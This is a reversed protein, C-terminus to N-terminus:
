GELKESYERANSIIQNIEGREMKPKYTRYPAKKAAFDCVARYTVDFYLPSAAAGFSVPKGTSSKFGDMLGKRLCLPAHSQVGDIPLGSNAIRSFVELEEISIKKLVYACYCAAICASKRLIPTSCGHTIAKDVKDMAGSITEYFDIVENEGSHNLKDTVGFLILRVAGAKHSSLKYGRSAAIQTVTRKSGIDVITVSNDIDYVIVQNNLVIDAEVIALLRHQGNLLTGDERIQIPEGNDQWLGNKMQRAYKQVLNKDIRRFNNVNGQLIEMAREKGVTEIRVKM